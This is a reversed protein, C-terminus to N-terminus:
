GRTDVQLNGLSGLALRRCFYSRDAHVQNAPAGGAEGAERGEEGDGELAHREDAGLGALAPSELGCLPGKLLGCFDCGNSRCKVFGRSRSLGRHASPAM